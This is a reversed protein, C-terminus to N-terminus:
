GFNTLVVALQQLHEHKTRSYLLVEDLFFLRFHDLYLEFTNNMLSLVFNPAWALEFPTTTYELHENRIPFALEPLDTKPSRVRLNDSRLDTTCSYNATSRQDRVDAIGLISVQTKIIQM